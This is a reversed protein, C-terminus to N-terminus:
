YMDATIMSIIKMIKRHTKFPLALDDEDDEDVSAEKLEGVISIYGEGERTCKEEKVEGGSRRERRERLKTQNHILDDM